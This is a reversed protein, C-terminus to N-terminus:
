KLELHCISVQSGPQKQSVRTIGTPRTNSNRAHCFLICIVHILGSGRVCCKHSAFTGLYWGQRSYRRFGGGRDDVPIYGQSRQGRGGVM